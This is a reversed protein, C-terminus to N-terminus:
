QKTKLLGDVRSKLEKKQEISVYTFDPSTIGNVVGSWQMYFMQTKITKSDEADKYRLRLVIFQPPMNKPILVTDNYYPTPSNPPIEGGVSGSIKPASVIYNKQDMMVIQYELDFASQEGTNIMLIMLRFPPSNPLQKFGPDRLEFHAPKTENIVTPSHLPENTAPKPLPLISPTLDVLKKHFQIASIIWRDGVVCIACLVIGFIWRSHVTDKSEIAHGIIKVVCLVGAIAFCIQSLLLHYPFWDIGIMGLGAAIFIGPVVAGLVDWRFLAKWGFISKWINAKSLAPGPENPISPTDVM